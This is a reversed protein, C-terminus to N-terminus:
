TVKGVWTVELFESVGGKQVNSPRNVVDDQANVLRLGPWYGLVEGPMVPYPPGEVDSDDFELTVLLQFAAPNLLNRPHRAYGPRKRASVASLAARDYLADFLGCSFEFYDGCAIAIGAEHNQLWTFGDIETTECELGSEAFFSRAAITSLEVGTVQCGQRALWLLDFSKGCLPVLVRSGAPLRPWYKKL